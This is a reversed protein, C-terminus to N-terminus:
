PSVAPTWAITNYSPMVIEACLVFLSAANYDKRKFHVKKLFFLLKTKWWTARILYGESVERAERIINIHAEVNVALLWM